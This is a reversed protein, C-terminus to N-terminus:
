AFKMPRIENVRKWGKTRNQGIGIREVEFKEIKAM